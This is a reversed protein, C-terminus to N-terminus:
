NADEPLLPGGSGDFLVSLEKELEDISQEPPLVTDGRSNQGLNYKEVADPSALAVLIKQQTEVPIQGVDAKKCIHLLTKIGHNTLGYAILEKAFEKREPPNPAGV